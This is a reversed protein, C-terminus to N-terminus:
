EGSQDEMLVLASTGMVGNIAYQDASAMYKVKAYGYGQNPTNSANLVTGHPEFSVGGLSASLWEVSTISLVPHSVGATGGSFQVYEEFPVQTSGGPSIGMTAPSQTNILRYSARYPSPYVHLTGKDPSDTGTPKGQADKGGDPIFTPTYEMKDAFSSSSDGESIRFLNWEERAEHDESVSLTDEEDTFTHDVTAMAFRHAAVPYLLRVTYDGNKESVIIGGATAVLTRIAQLPTVDEFSIRNAPLVWDPIEWNTVGVGLLVEVAERATVAFSNSFIIPSAFPADLLAMPSKASIQVDVKAPGSRDIVKGTVIMTYEEGGINLIVQEQDMIGAYDNIDTLRLRAEWVGSDESQSVVADGIPIVLNM